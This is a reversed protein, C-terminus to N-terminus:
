TVSVIVKISPKVPNMVTVKYNNSAFQFEYLCNKIGVDAASHMYLQQEGKEEMPILSEM